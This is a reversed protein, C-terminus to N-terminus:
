QASGTQLIRLARVAKEDGQAAAKEFLEEAKVSDQPVGHGYFYDLGLNLQADAIGQVAAKRYWSAAQAYDQPVGHGNA